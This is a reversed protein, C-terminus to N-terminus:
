RRLPATLLTTSSKQAVSVAPALSAALLFQRRAVSNIGASEVDAEVFGAQRGGSQVADYFAIWKESEDIRAQEVDRL